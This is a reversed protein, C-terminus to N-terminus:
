KVDFGRRELLPQIDPDRGAFDRFLQMADKSGGKSLLTARFHDGNARSLGGNERIWKVSDADLVESWIYSYYGASYGGVIHSFYTSRYRPPVLPYDLGAKKLAEAEFAIVDTPVQEPTLQHLSQDLISAALYETSAFGQNFQEAAIVKDLLEQPIAEGTEHHKAYNALITPWTAWMENVQSPYEVFDRPVATGAFRPYTVNSFMGHLAHGFEHFMTTVEDFTMLTPQGDPPKPINQHNGVVPKQGLLGTQGVYANMWAGGRKSPRAYFDGVFLALSSGDADFVEWVRADPHYVPLDPRPKFTLGYVEKAAFFVGNELVSNLEFYPKLQGEDFSYREQRVKNAYFDWDWAALQFGGKEKDILAQMDAAERRANAVAAPALKALMSNVAEPTAATADELGYAAHSPYGLLQAREARLKVVKALVERNDFEGGRSGRALSAELIRQRSARNTLETLPPQGSTNQLAVLFKGEKGAAKAADAAASIAAESMGDLEEASDFLVASANVEKLVNQSFTTQLVALQANMAKLQEKQTADLRAGARVFDTHYRELLRLSEADLGLTERADFLTKIRNFMAENLTIADVHAALKPANAAQVAQRADNTDAGALNFFVASTRALLRGSREMAVITNEFTPPEPNNAIAEVEKIQEAMGRELAPAFDDDRILDFQPFGYQLPSPAFFPNERAVENTAKTSVDSAVEPAPSSCGALTALAMALAAALPKMMAFEM